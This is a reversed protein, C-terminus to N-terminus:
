LLLEFHPGDPFARKGEARRRAMYDALLDQTPKTTGNLAKLWYGGWRITVGQEVAATRMAEAIPYFLEWSWSPESKGNGDFDGWPVLDVAHGYGDAQKLHKSNMTQSVGRKVYQRQREITRVGELVAFDQTTLEIAREVVKVLQPHVGELRQRSTTGLKFDRM